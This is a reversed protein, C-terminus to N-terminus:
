EPKKTIEKRLEKMNYSDFRYTTSLIKEDKINIQEICSVAGVKRNTIIDYIVYAENGDVFVAKIENRIVINTLENNEHERLMKIYDNANDIKIVSNFKFAPDLIELLINYKKEGVATIYEKVLSKNKDLMEKTNM